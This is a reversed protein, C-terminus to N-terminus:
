YHGRTAVTQGAPTDQSVEYIADNTGVGDLNGTASGLFATASSGTVAYTYYVQTDKPAFGIADWGANTAWLRKGPSANGAPTAACDLFTDYEAQYAIESTAIAALNISAESTKSKMQYRSFAPIAVAALIGIIAVVIMLEILTFGKQNQKYQLKQFM